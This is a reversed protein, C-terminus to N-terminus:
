VSGSTKSGYAATGVALVVAGRGSSRPAENPTLVHHRTSSTAGAWSRASSHPSTWEPAYWEGREVGITGPLPGVQQRAGELPHTTSIKQM